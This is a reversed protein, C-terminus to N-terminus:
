RARGSRAARGTGPRSRRGCGARRRGPARSRRPARGSARRRPPRPARCPPEAARGPSGPRGPSRAPPRPRRGRRRERERDRHGVVRPRVEAEAAELRRQEVGDALEARVLGPAPAGVERRAELRGDDVLEDGLQAPARPPLAGACRALTAPRRAPRRRQRSCGGACGPRRARRPRPAPASAPGARARCPCRPSSRRPPATGRAWGSDRSGRSPCRDVRSTSTDEVAARAAVEAVLRALREPAEVADRQPSTSM